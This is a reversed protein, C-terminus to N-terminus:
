MFDMFAFVRADASHSISIFELNFLDDKLASHFLRIFLHHRYEELFIEQTELIFQLSHCM